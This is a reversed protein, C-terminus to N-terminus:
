KLCNNPIQKKRILILETFTVNSFFTDLIYFLLSSHQHHYRGSASQSSLFRDIADAATKKTIPKGDVNYGIHELHDYWHKPVQFM